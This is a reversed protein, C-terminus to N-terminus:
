TESGEINECTHNLNILERATLNKKLGCKQCECYFYVSGDPATYAYQTEFTKYTGKDRMPFHPNGIKGKKFSEHYAKNYAIYGDEFRVDIDNKKRYAIITMEQGNTSTSTEGIRSDTMSQTCPKNPNRIQGKKFSDYTKHYAVYGDEFRVDINNNKRYAIITMKQGNTAITTEGTRDKKKPMSQTCPKNPNGIKGKKFSVYTKHCAVYGDEFQVDIDASKRYAIITMEQGNTAISTEGIRSDIMSQMSPKNPNRIKGKKFSDYTKHCAVYGDEFQVDIDAAGRYTIITMVQGNSALATEETRNIGNPHKISGAKFATYYIHKRIAGDEFQVNMDHSNQYAIITMKMGNNAVSTEGTRDKRASM